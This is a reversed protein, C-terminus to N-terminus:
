SLMLLRTGIALLNNLTMYSQLLLCVHDPYTLSQFGLLQIMYIPEVLDSNLYATGIDFQKMMMKLAAAIALM